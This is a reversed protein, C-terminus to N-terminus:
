YNTVCRGLIYAAQATSGDELEVDTNQAYEGIVRLVQGYNVSSKNEWRIPESIDVVIYIGLAANYLYMVDGELLQLAGAAVHLNGNPFVAVGPLGFIFPPEAMSGKVSASNCGPVNQFNGSKMQEILAPPYDEDEGFGLLPVSILFSIGLVKLTQKIM